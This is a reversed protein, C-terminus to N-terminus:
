GELDKRMREFEERSIEGRAYRKKLIDLPTEPPKSSQGRVILYVVLAIVAVWLVGMLAGGWGFSMHGFDGPSRGTWVCSFFLLAPLSVLIKRM